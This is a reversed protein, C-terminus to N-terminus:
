KKHISDYEHKADKTTELVATAQAMLSGIDAPNQSFIMTNSQKGMQGYMKIYDEACRLRAAQEGFPKSMASAILEIGQAEAQAMALLGQAQAEFAMLEKTKNAEAENTIRIMEGESENILKIKYGESKLVASQKDGEAGKIQERRSREAAAQKDMADAIHKDPIIETIEYRKCKLGLDAVIETLDNHVKSNIKERAHLIEDLEMHGIAARMSSQANQKVAYLPNYSGYAAQQPDDFQVFVNGAIALSVNDKTIAMQPEIEIAKERMDIVYSISDMIPVAFFIGPSEISRIKGFREVIMAHGQPCVNLVTNAKTRPWKEM